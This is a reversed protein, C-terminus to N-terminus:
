VYTGLAEIQEDTLKSKLTAVVASNRLAPATRLIRRHMYTPLSKWLKTEIAWTSEFEKVLIDEWANRYISEPLEERAEVLTIGYNAAAARRQQEVYQNFTQM